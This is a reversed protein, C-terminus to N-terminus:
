TRPTPPTGLAKRLLGILQERETTDLRSAAHRAFQFAREFRENTADGEPTRAVRKVRRDAADPHRELLGRAELRAVVQTVNSADCGLEAALQGMARPTSIRGLVCAQAPSLGETEGALEYARDYADVFDFLAAEVPGAAVPGSPIAM